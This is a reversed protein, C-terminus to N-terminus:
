RKGRYARPLNAWAIVTGHLSHTWRGKTYHGAGVWRVGYLDITTVLKEHSTRPQQRDARIWM